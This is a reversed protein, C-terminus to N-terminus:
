SNKKSENILELIQNVFQNVTEESVTRQNNQWVVEVQFGESRLFDNKEKDYCHIDNVTKGNWLVHSYDPNFFIDPNAHWFDGNFEICFKIPHTIVFDYMYPKGLPTIKKFENEYYYVKIDSPLKQVIRDFFDKSVKSARTGKFSNKYKRSWIELGKEEGYKDVFYSLSTYVKAKKRRQDYIKKGKEIGYKDIYWSESFRQVESVKNEAEKHSYGKSVWHEVCRPSRTRDKKFKDENSRHKQFESIKENAQDISYGKDIWYEIRRPSCKKQRESIISIAHEESYGRYTWYEVSRHSRRLFNLKKCEDSCIPTVKLKSPLQFEKKCVQCQPM